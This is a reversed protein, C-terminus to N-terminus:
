RARTLVLARGSAEQIWGLFARFANWAEPAAGMQLVDVRMVVKVKRTAPDYSPIWFVAGFANERRFAEPNELTWGEPLTMTSIGIHTSLYPLVIMTSRNEEVKEPIDLASPMGPFPVIKRIRGVEVEMTGAVSWSVRAKPDQAHLVEVRGVAAQRLLNVFSEKLVKEQESPELSLFRYREAYEPFGGFEAKMSFEDEADGVKLDYTYRRFNAAPQLGGIVDKSPKWTAGDLILAPVGTFDPHVVGPTAFRLAPDFWTLGSEPDEIGILLHTFQWPNLHTWEFVGQERDQVQAVRPKLGLARALHFFLIQMGHASTKGERIVRDLDRPRLEAWFDKPLAAREARSPMSANLVRQQLLIMLDSARKAPSGTLQTRLESVWRDFTPGAKVQDEFAKRYLIQSADEWYADPGKKATAALIEPQHFLLLSIPFRMPFLAFPEPSMAPLERLCIRRYTSTESYDEHVGSNKKLSWALPFSKPLELVLERIPYPGSFIWKHYLGNEYRRPLGWFPGDAKEMWHMEVVCDSTVGPAVLHIRREKLMGQEIVREAFDKRSNISVVRGDPYVTRGSIDYATTPFDAIGAAPIGSEGHIRVRYTYEISYVNFKLRYELITAGEAGGRIAWVAPPIPAFDAGARGPASILAAALLLSPLRLM